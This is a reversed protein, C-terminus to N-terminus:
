ECGKKVVQTAYSKLKATSIAKKIEEQMRSM